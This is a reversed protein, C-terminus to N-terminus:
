CSGQCFGPIPAKSDFPAIDVHVYPVIGRKAVMITQTMPFKFYLKSEAIVIISPKANLANEIYTIDNNIHNAEIVPQRQYFFKSDKAKLSAETEKFFGIFCGEQPPQIKNYPLPAYDSTKLKATENKACGTIMELGSTVVTLGVVANLFQRRNMGGTTM